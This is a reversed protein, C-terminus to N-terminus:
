LDVRGGERRSGKKGRESAGQVSRAGKKIKRKGDRIWRRGEMGLDMGGERGEGPRGGAARGWGGGGVEM